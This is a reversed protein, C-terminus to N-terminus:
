LPKPSTSRANLHPLVHSLGFGVSHVRLGGQPCVGSRSEGALSKKWPRGLSHNCRSKAKASETFTASM